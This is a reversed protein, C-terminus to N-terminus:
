RVPQFPVDSAGRYMPSAPTEEWQDSRWAEIQVDNAGAMRLTERDKLCDSGFWDTHCHRRASLTDMPHHMKLADAEWRAELAALHAEARLRSQRLIEQYPVGADQLAEMCTEGLMHRACAPSNFFSEPDIAFRRELANLRAIDDLDEQTLRFWGTTAHRCSQGTANCVLTISSTEGRHHSAADEIEQPTFSEDAFRGVRQFLPSFLFEKPARSSFPIPRLPTQQREAAIAQSVDEPDAHATVEVHVVLTNGDFRTTMQKTILTLVGATYSRIEDTVLQLDKVITLSNLYSAMHELADRKAADTALRVADQKTENDEMRHEGVGNVTQM